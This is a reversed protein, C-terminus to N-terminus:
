KNKAHTERTKKNDDQKLVLEPFENIKGRLISLIWCCITEYNENM